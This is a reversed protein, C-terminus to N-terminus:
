QENYKYINDSTVVKQIKDANGSNQPDHLYFGIGNQMLETFEPWSAVVEYEPFMMSGISVAQKISSLHLACRYDLSIGEESYDITTFGLDSMRMLFEDKGEIILADTMPGAIRDIFPTPVEILFPFTYGTRGWEQHSFGRLTESSIEVRMQIGKEALSLASLFAIDSSEEPVIFANNTPYTISAEHLDFAFNVRETEIISM